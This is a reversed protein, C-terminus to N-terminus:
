WGYGRMRNQTTQLEQQQRDMQRQQDAQQQQMIAERQEAQVRQSYQNAQDAAISAQMNSADYRTEYEHYDAYASASGFVFNGFILIYAIKRSAM